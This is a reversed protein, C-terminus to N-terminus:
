FREAFALAQAIIDIGVIGSWAAMLRQFQEGPSGRGISHGDVRTVPLLCLPTSSLLVEDAELVDELRLGRHITPIGLSEALQSAVNLSIGQLVTSPPPSILGEEARYILLNATSAETVWGDLDLLLARAGPEAADAFRDALHYHMRSRCKLAPPWCQPPVQRIETTRLIQGTRYKAAWLRFPLPYTHLCVTPRIPGPSTYSPYEGPTVFVSLGLDDDPALLRHNRAVLELSIEALDEWSVSPNVGIIELSQELRALHGELHFLEGGFTRLQEAVAAGQVFGADTLSLGASAQPLFEGNLYVVPEDM